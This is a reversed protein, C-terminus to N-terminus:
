IIKVSQIHLATAKSRETEDASSIMQSYAVLSVKSDIILHKQEPLFVM